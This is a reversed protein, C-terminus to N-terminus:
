DEFVEIVEKSSKANRLMRCSAESQTFKAIDALVEIHPGSMDPPALIM